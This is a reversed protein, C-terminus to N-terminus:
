KSVILLNVVVNFTVTGILAWGIFERNESTIGPNMISLVETASAVICIENFLEIKFNVFKKFPQHKVLYIM